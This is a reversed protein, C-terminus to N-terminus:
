PFYHLTANARWKKVYIGLLHLFCTGMGESVRGKRATLHGILNPWHRLAHLVEIQM